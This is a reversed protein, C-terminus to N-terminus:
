QLARVGIYGLAMCRAFVEESDTWYLGPELAFLVEPTYSSICEAGCTPLCSAFVMPKELVFGACAPAEGEAEGPPPDETLGLLDAVDVVDGDLQMQGLVVAQPEARTDAAPPEETSAEVTVPAADKHYIEGDAMVYGKADLGTILGAMYVQKIRSRIGATRIAEKWAEVTCPVIDDLLTYESPTDAPEAEKVPANDPHGETITGATSKREPEPEPEPAEEVPKPVFNAGDKKLGLLETVEYVYVGAGKCQGEILSSSVSGMSELVPRFMDAVRAIVEENGMNEREPAATTNEAKVVPTGDPNMVGKKVLIALRAANMPTTELPTPPTWILTRNARAEPNDPCLEAFACGGYAKCYKEEGYPVRLADELKPLRGEPVADLYLKKMLKAGPIYRTHWIEEVRAWPILASVAYSKPKGTTRANVHRVFVADPPDHGWIGKAYFPMQAHEALEAQSLSFYFNDSSTTKLDDILPNQRHSLDAFGYGDIGEIINPIHVEREVAWKEPDLPFPGPYHRSAEMAIDHYRKGHVEIDITGTLLLEEQAAHINKGDDRSQSRKGPVRLVRGYFYKRTCGEISDLATPSMRVPKGSATLLPRLM